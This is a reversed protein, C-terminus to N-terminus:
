EACPDCPGDGQSRYVYNVYFTVDIPDVFGDCNWDGNERPCDPLQPRADLSKYVYNVIYSVDVPTFEGDLDLDCFEACDCSFPTFATVRIDDINWGCYRWGGDTSGMTWRLYVTSQNDAVASINVDMETWSADTIETANAWITIWNAGDNSVRVYAHDYQPQEVGLWRQFNLHVNYLDSCDIITSTLHTEALGNPYDGNLNYGYVDAGTYGSTPDPGGYEGGGGTPQGFAWDGEITWGPDGDLTWEYRLAAEGVALMVGCTTDGIHDSTNTFYLTTFYVGEGLTEANSNIGVTVQATGHAPMTGSVDGSLTLWDADPDGSVEYDLPNDNKNEFQFITSAPAFPGGVPGESHFDEIPSISLGIEVALAKICFNASEDYDHLDLWDSGEHYYSEGPNAASEVIVEYWTTGLLVPVDSTRDYPHGGDSLKLYVCFDEGSAVFIPSDLDITHFGAYEIAGTKAALENLLEAGSFNDYIRVTYTVNDTATFFSVAQIVQPRPAVFANFAETCDTITDRWGHYDHYYIYDYDLPEVNQFSVAGMEPHQCCHKDYYSIWFYGNNGWGSGWSNKCLWAGPLPAQTTLTDDWGVIAVAHNPDLTSTPPQYHIYNSMFSGSYCLCTGMVGEAMIKNKLTNINSLDAGATFWEIDRPYYYHFGPDYRDPPTSYSQGDVDRVVGEGRTIYASAVRYDGGEHVILGGGTPPNTDDNNHENFGNWWDLHYEALNPEGSEGAAAWNGTMLLNGEIAAM